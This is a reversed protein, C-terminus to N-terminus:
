KNEQRHQLRRTLTNALAARMMARHRMSCVAQMVAVFVFERAPAV